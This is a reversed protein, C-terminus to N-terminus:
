APALGICGLRWVENMFYQACRALGKVRRCAAVELRAESNIEALHPQMGPREGLPRRTRNIGLGVCHPVIYYKASPLKRRRRRSSPSQNGMLKRMDYLLQTLAPRVNVSSIFDASQGANREVLIPALLAQLLLRVRLCGRRVLRAIVLVYM